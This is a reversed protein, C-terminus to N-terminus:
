RTAWQWVRKGGAVTEETPVFGVLTLLREAEPFGCVAYFTDNRDHFYRRLSRAVRAGHAKAAPALDLMVWARDGIPKIAGLAAAEGDIRIVVHEGSAFYFAGVEEITAPGIDWDAM